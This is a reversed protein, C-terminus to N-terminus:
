FLIYRCFLTCVTKSEALQRKVPYSFSGVQFITGLRKLAKARQRLEDKKVGPSHLVSQCVHSLTLEIDAVNLKWLSGLMVQQKSELYSELSLEGDDGGAELQKKRIDEQMQMLQIAGPMGMFGWTLGKGV